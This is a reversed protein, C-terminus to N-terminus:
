RPKEIKIKWPKDVSNALYVDGFKEIVEKQPFRALVWLKMLLFYSVVSIPFAYLWSYKLNVLGIAVSIGYAVIAAPNFGKLYKFQGTPDYLDSISICRRRIIYYDALMIGSIPALFAGIIPLYMLFFEILIWPFTLMGLIGAIIVGKSFDIKPSGIFSLIYGPAFLNAAINTSLQALIVIVLGIIIFFANHPLTVAIAQVPNGYGTIMAGIMGVSSFIVMGLPIGIFQGIISNFNRLFFNKTISEIKVFRTFDSINISVTSWYSLSATVASWFSIKKTIPFSIITNISNKSILIYIIWLCLVLLAPAAINEAIRIGKIGKATIFIQIAGFIFFWLPINSYGTFRIIIFDIAVAGYYTQIGFWCIAAIARFIMPIYSGIYGFPARIFSPFNLGHEIGLDSMLVLVVVSGLSGILIAIVAEIFTLGGVFSAGLLFIGMQAAMGLWLWILDKWGMIREGNSTPILDKHIFKSSKVTVEKGEEEAVFANTIKM